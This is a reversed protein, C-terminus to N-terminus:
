DITYFVQDNIVALLILEVTPLALLDVIWKEM